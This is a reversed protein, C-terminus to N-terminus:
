AFAHNIKRLTQSLEQKLVHLDESYSSNNNVNREIRDCITRLRTEGLEYSYNKISRTLDLVKFTEGAQISIIRGQLDKIVSWSQYVREAFVSVYDSQISLFSSLEKLRFERHKSTQHYNKHYYSKNYTGIKISM